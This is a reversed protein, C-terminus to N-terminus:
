IQQTRTKKMKSVTIISHQINSHCIAENRSIVPLPREIESKNDSVTNEATYKTASAPQFIFSTASKQAVFNDTQKARLISRRRTLRFKPHTCFRTQRWELRFVVHQTPLKVTITDFM